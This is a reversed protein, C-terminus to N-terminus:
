RIAEHAHRHIAQVASHMWEVSGDDCQQVRYAAVSAAHLDPGARVRCRATRVLPTRPDSQKAMKSENRGKDAM